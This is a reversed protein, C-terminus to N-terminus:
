NFNKNLYNQMDSDIFSQCEWPFLVWKNSLIVTDCLLGDFIGKSTWSLYTAKPYMDRYKNYTKGSDVIEDVWLMDECPTSLYPIQLHHSIAVSLILGGRPVGYVGSVKSKDFPPNSVLYTIYEDFDDWTLKL